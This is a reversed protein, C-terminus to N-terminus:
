EDTGGRYEILEVMNCRRHAPRMNAYAHLLEPAWDVPIVHDVTPGM